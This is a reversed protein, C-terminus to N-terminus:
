DATVRVNLSALGRSAIGTRFRPNSDLLEISKTRALLTTFLIEMDLRSLHNGLCLHAGRGFAIHRNPARTIDFADADPFHAPDRNAAGYLLGFKTGKAYHGGFGEIEESAYRHFFPLPSEYRFMEQVATHIFGPERRLLAMQEPHTLLALMGTGLVDITSGHGAALILIALSALESDSMRGAQKAAVMVSLLDDTPAQERQKIMVKLYEFFATTAQEAQIKKADSRDADFFAVIRESWVRLQSCEADPVGLLNGIIHGPLDEALDSVFDIDQKELVHDLLRDVYGQIMSRHRRVFTQTFEQFVILRLRRHDEGDIELMSRQILQEHNPMDHWNGLRQQEDITQQPMVGDLSRRLRPDRAAADVDDFSALLWANMPEYFVPAGTARLQAYTPYPNQAFHESLPDFRLSDGSHSM